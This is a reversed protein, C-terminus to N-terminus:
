QTITVTTTNAFSSVDTTTSASGTNIDGGVTNNASINEGTNTWNHVIQDIDAYNDVKVYAKKKDKLLVSNISGPGTVENVGSGMDSSATQDVAANTMNADAWAITLADAPSTTITGGVTNGTEENGGTKTESYINTYLSGHNKINVKASKKAIRNCTNISAPGTTLNECDEAAFVGSVASALLISAGLTGTLIKKMM